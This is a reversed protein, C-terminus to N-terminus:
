EVSWGSTIASLRGLIREATAPSEKMIEEVIAAHFREIKDARMITDTIKAATELCRRLHESAGLLLRSNRVKGEDTRAHRMLDEAVTLCTNLRTIIPIAGASAIHEVRPVTPLKTAVREGVEAPTLPAAPAKAAQAEGAAAITRAAHEDARGTALIADVWRYLTAQSARGIFPGIATKKNIASSGIRAAEALVAAEVEARLATNDQGVAM